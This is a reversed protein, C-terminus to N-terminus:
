SGMVVLGSNWLSVRTDDEGLPLLFGSVDLRQFLGAKKPAIFGLYM